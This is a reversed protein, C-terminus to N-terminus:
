WQASAPVIIHMPNQSLHGPILIITFALQSYTLGVSIPISAVSFAPPLLRSLRTISILTLLYSQHRSYLGFPLLLVLWTQISLCSCNNLILMQQAPLSTNLYASDLATRHTCFVNHVSIHDFRNTLGGYLINRRILSSVVFFTHMWKEALFVLFESVCQKRIKATTIPSKLSCVKAPKKIRQNHLYKELMERYSTCKDLLNAVCYLMHFALFRRHHFFFVLIM